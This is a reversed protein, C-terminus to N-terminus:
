VISYYVLSYYLIIQSTYYTYIYIYIYLKIYIFVVPTVSARALEVVVAAGLQPGGSDQRRYWATGWVHTYIYIYIYTHYTHICVCVYIYIYIYM